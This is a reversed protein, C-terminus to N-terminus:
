VAGVQRKDTIVIDVMRDHYSVPLTQKLLQFDYGVGIKLAHNLKRLFRDYYGGGRGLRHCHEDFAVGPVIIIDPVGKFRATTPEPIGFRGHHLKDGYVYQRMEITHRHTVPLLFVKDDFLRALQLVDVERRIPYYLMVTKAEVFQPLACVRSCIQASLEVALERSMIRRKQSVHERVKEKQKKLRRWPLMNLLNTLNYHLIM